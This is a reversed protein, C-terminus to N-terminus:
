APARPPIACESCGAVVVADLGEKEITSALLRRGAGSCWYRAVHVSVPMDVGALKASLKTLDVVPAIEEGCECLFVGVSGTTRTSAMAPEGFVASTTV